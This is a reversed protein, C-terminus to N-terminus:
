DRAALAAGGPRRGAWQSRHPRGGGTGKELAAADPVLYTVLGVRYAEQATIHRGTLLLDAAVAYPIQHRLRVTSGGRPFLGWRVESLGFRASAAAV